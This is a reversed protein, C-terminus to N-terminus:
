IDGLLLRRYLRQREREWDPAQYSYEGAINESKFATRNLAIRVLEILVDRREENDDAPVYRIAVHPLWKTGEPLRILQGRDGLVYVDNEDLETAVSDLRSYEALQVVRDVRRTLFLSPRGGAVLAEVASGDYNPGCRAIMMEEERDIVIQLRTDDLGTPVVARLEGV